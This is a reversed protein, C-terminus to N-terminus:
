FKAKLGKLENQYEPINKLLYKIKKFGKGM